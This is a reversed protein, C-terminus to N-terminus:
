LQSSSWFFCFVDALRKASWLASGTKLTTTFVHWFGVVLHQTARSPCPWEFENWPNTSPRARGWPAMWFPMPQQQQHHTQAKDRPAAPTLGRYGQTWSPSPPPALGPNGTGLARPASRHEEEEDSSDGTYAVLGTKVRKVSPESIPSTQHHM